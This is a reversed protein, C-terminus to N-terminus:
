LGFLKRLELLADAGELGSETIGRLVDKLVIWEEATFEQKGEAFVIAEDSRTAGDVLKKAASSADGLKEIPFQLPLMAKYLATKHTAKELQM